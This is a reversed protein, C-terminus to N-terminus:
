ADARQVPPTAAEHEVSWELLPRVVGPWDAVYEGRVGDGASRDVVQFAVADREQAHITTPNLTSVEANVFVRGEALFNGPIRCVARVVGPERPQNLWAHNTQDSSVFLCVGDENFFHLNATPRRKADSALHWYEVEIEISQRVDIEESYDGSDTRVRV